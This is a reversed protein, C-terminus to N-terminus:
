VVLKLQFDSVIGKIWKAHRCTQWGDDDDDDCIFVDTYQIPFYRSDSRIGLRIDACGCTNTLGTDTM